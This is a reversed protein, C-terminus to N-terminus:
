IDMFIFCFFDFAREQLTAVLAAGKQDISSRSPFFIYDFSSASSTSSLLAPSTTICPTYLITNIPRVHIPM